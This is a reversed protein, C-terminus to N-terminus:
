LKSRLKNIQIIEVKDREFIKWEKTCYKTSLHECFHKADKLTRHGELLNWYDGIFNDKYAIVFQENDFSKNAGCQADYILTEM